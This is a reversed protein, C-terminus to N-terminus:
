WPRSDVNQNAFGAELWAKTHGFKHFLQCPHISGAFSAVGKEAKSNFENKMSPFKTPSFCFPKQCKCEISSFFM